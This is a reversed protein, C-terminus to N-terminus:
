KTIVLKQTNSVTGDTELKLVYIGTKLNVADFTSEYLGINLKGDQLVAIEKGLLDYVALRTYANKRLAYRILAKDSIPNPYIEVLYFDKDQFTTNTGTTEPEQAEEVHLDSGVKFGRLVLNLHDNGFRIGNEPQDPAQGTKDDAEQTLIYLDNEDGFSSELSWVTVEDPDGLLKSDRIEKWDNPNNKSDCVLMYIDGNDPNDENNFLEMAQYSLSVIGNKNVTINPILFYYSSDTDTFHGSWADKNTDWTYAAIQKDFRGDKDYRTATYAIAGYDGNFDMSLDDFSMTGDNALLTKNNGWTKTDQNWEQYVISSNLTSDNADPDNIWSAVAHKDDFYAIKVSKNTGALDVLKKPTSLLVGNDQETIASYWIDSYDQNNEKVVWTIMGEKGKGMIISSNGESRGNSANDNLKQPISFSNDAQDYISVWIDQAGLVKEINKESEIEGKDLSNETWSILANGSPLGSVKPNSISAKNAIVTKADSFRDTSLNLGSYILSTSNSNENYDLWVTHLSQNNSSLSPQAIFLPSELDARLQSTFSHNGFGDNLEGILSRKNFIQDGYTSDYFTKEYRGTALGWGLNYDIEGQIQLRLGFKPITVAEPFSRYEFGGGVTGIAKITGSAKAIIADATVRLYANAEIQAIISTATSDIEIFGWKKSLDDYGFVLKGTLKGKVGLGGDLKVYVPGVLVRALPFNITLEPTEYTNEAKIAFNFDQDLTLKNTGGLSFDYPIEKQDFLNLIVNAKPNTPITEVNDASYNYTVDFSLFANNLAYSRKGLGKIESPLKKDLIADINLKGQFSITSEAKNITVGSVSGSNGLWFPQPIIEIDKFPESEDISESNSNYYIATIETGPSLTGIDYTAKWDEGDLSGNITTIINDEVQFRYKVSTADQPIQSKAITFTANVGTIGQIFKGKLDSEIVGDALATKGIALAIILLISSKSLTKM